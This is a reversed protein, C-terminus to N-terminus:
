HPNHGRVRCHRIQLARDNRGGRTARTGLYDLKTARQLSKELFFGLLRLNLRSRRKQALGLSEDYASRAKDDLLTRYAEEM